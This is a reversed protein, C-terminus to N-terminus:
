IHCYYGKFSEEWVQEKSPVHLEQANHREAVGAVLQDYYVQCVMRRELKRRRAPNAYSILYSGIDQPGSGFGVMEFDLLKLEADIHMDGCVCQHVLFDRCTEGEGEGGGADQSGTRRRMVEEGGGGMAFYVNGPHLDGHVVTWAVYNERTKDTFLARYSAFNVRSLSAEVCAILHPPIRVGDKSEFAIERPDDLFAHAAGSREQVDLINRKVWEWGERAADQAASWQPADNDSPTRGAAEVCVERGRLFHWRELAGHHQWFAAHMQAAILVTETMIEEEEDFGPCADSLDPCHPPRGPWTVPHNEQMFHGTHAGPLLEMIVLKSGTAMDGDAFFLHPLHEQLASCSLMDSEERAVRSAMIESLFVAERALGLRRSRALRDEGVFTKVLRVHTRMGPPEGSPRRDHGTGSSCPRCVDAHVTTLVFMDISYGAETDAAAINVCQCDTEGLNAHVWETTIVKALEGAM